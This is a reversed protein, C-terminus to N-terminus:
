SSMFHEHALIAGVRSFGTFTAYGSEVVSTLGTFFSRFLHGIHFHALIADLHLSSEFKQSVRRRLILIM